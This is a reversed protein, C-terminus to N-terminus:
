LGERYFDYQPNTHVNIGPTSVSNKLVQSRKLAPATALKYRQSPGEQICDGTCSGCWPCLRAVHPAPAHAM